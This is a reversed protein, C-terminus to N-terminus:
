VAPLTLTFVAGGSPGPAYDVRGGQAEALSRVVYLGLGTGTTVAGTPRSFEQFLQDRFEEPVGDGADIVLIRLLTADDPDGEVRVVYPARGYKLANGLLNALMQELRGPDALVRRDDEVQASVAMLYRETVVKDVVTLPDTEQVDLHLSGQQIEAATLLDAAITDLMRAQRIVSAMLRQRQTESMGAGAETISEAAGCLVAVPGRIEMATTAIARRLVGVDESSSDLYVLLSRESRRLSAQLRTGDVVVEFSSEGDLRNFAVLGALEPAVSALPTGIRARHGLVRQAVPNAHVIHLTPEDAVELVGYPSMALAEWTSIGRAPDPAGSTEDAGDHVVSLVPPPSEPRAAGPAPPAPLQEPQATGFPDPADVIDKVFEIIRKLAIGKQLYGDAGITMAKESMQTAGFGSLVVIKGHPILNRITPLAELGDMVPMSLDLLVVDPQELRVCEIGSRGDGAEGVVELGGRTLALRLLERLDATDDIIVVRIPRTGQAMSIM